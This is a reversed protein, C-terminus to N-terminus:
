TAPDASTILGVSMISVTTGENSETVESSTSQSEEDDDDDGDDISTVEKETLPPSGMGKPKKVYRSSQIESDETRQRRKLGTKSKSNSLTM